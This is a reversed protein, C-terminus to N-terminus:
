NLFALYQRRADEALEEALRRVTARFTASRPGRRRVDRLADAVDAGAAARRELAQLVSTDLGEVWLTEAVFALAGAADRPSGDELEMAVVHLCALCVGPSGLNVDLMAAVEAARKPKV